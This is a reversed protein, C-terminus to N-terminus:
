AQLPIRYESYEEIIHEGQQYIWRFTFRDGTYGTRKRIDPLVVSEFNDLLTQEMDRLREENAVSMQEAEQESPATQGYYAVAIERENMGEPLPHGAGRFVEKVTDLWDQYLRITINYDM